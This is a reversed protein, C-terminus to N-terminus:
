VSESDKKTHTDASSSITRFLGGCDGLCWGRAGMCGEWCGGVGSPASGGLGCWEGRLLLGPPSPPSPPPPARSWSSAPPGLGRGEGRHKLRLWLRLNLESGSVAGDGGQLWCYMSHTGGTQRDVQRGVQCWQVRVGQPHLWFVQIRRFRRDTNCFVKM